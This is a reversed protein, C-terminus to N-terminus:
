RNEMVSRASRWLRSVLQLIKVVGSSTVARRDMRPGGASPRGLQRQCLYLIKLHLITVIHLFCGNQYVIAERFQSASLFLCKKKSWLNVNRQVGIHTFWPPLVFPFHAHFSDWVIIFYTLFLLGQLVWTSVKDPCIKSVARIGLCIYATLSTTSLSLM